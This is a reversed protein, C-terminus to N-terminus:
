GYDNRKIEKGVFIEDRVVLASIRFQRIRAKERFVADMLSVQIHKKVILKVEHEFCFRGQHANQSKQHIKV